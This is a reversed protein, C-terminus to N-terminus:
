AGADDDLLGALAANDDLDVGDRVGRRGFVPLPPVVGAPERRHLASRVADEIVAGVTRGTLAARAKVERYLGDEIRITTRMTLM